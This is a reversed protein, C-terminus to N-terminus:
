TPGPRPARHAPHRAPDRDGAPRGSRRAPVGRDVKIIEAPLERLRSLSSYGAGFDDVAFMM